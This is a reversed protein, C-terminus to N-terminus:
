ARARAYMGSRPLASLGLHEGSQGGVLDIKGKWGECDRDCFTHRGM